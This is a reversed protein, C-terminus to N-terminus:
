RTEYYNKKLGIKRISEAKEAKREEIDAKLKKKCAFDFHACQLNKLFKIGDEKAKMDLVYPKLTEEEEKKIEQIQAKQNQTLNIKMLYDTYNKKNSAAFASAMIILILLILVKKM